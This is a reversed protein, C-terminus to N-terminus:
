RKARTNRQEWRRGTDGGYHHTPNISASVSPVDLLGCLPPKMKSTERQRSVDSTRDRKAAFFSSELKFATHEGLARSCALSHTLQALSRTSRWGYGAVNFNRKQLRSEAMFELIFLFARM